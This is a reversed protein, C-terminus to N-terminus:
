RSKLATPMPRVGILRRAAEADAEIKPRIRSCDSLSDPRSFGNRYFLNFNKTFMAREESNRTSEIYTRVGIVDAEYKSWSCGVALSARSSLAIVADFRERLNGCLASTPAGESGARQCDWSGWSAPSGDQVTSYIALVRSYAEPILIGKMNVNDPPVPNGVAYISVQCIPWGSKAVPCLKHAATEFTLRNRQHADDVVVFYADILQNSTGSM